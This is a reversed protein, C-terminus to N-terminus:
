RALFSFKHFISTTLQGSINITDIHNILINKKFFCCLSVPCFHKPSLIVCGTSPHVSNDSVLKPEHCLELPGINTLIKALRFWVRFILPLTVRYCHWCSLKNRYLELGKLILELIQNRYNHLHWCWFICMKANGTHDFITRGVNFLFNDLCHVAINDFHCIMLM